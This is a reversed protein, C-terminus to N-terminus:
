PGGVTCGGAAYGVNKRRCEAAREADRAAWADTIAQKDAPSLPSCGTPTGGLAALLACALVLRAIV